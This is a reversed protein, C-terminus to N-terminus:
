KRRHSVSEYYEVTQRAITEPAFREKIETYACDAHKRACQPDEVYTRICDVLRDASDPAFLLGNEGHRVIENIGGVDSAVVPLRAAMAELLTNPANDFLSPILFISSRVYLLPLGDRKVSGLLWVRKRHSRSLTREIADRYNPGHPLGTEGAFTVNIRPDVALIKEVANLMLEAGKRRELRGVFLLDIRERTDPLRRIRDFPETDMPTRIVAMSSEPIGYRGRAEKGLANSTCKYRDGRRVGKEELRYRDIREKTAIMQNYSDVVESSTHFHIVVPFPRPARLEVALGGYEPIEVIDLPSRRQLRILVERVGRSMGREWVAPSDAFREVMRALGGSPRHEYTHLTIGRDLTDVVTGKRVLVHVEHGLRTLGGALLYTYTAIGGHGYGTPSPYEPNVFAIRM